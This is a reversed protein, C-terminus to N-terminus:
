AAQTCKAASRAVADNFLAPAEINISHGGELDVTALSPLLKAARDRLPQFTREWLGNVLLSPATLEGLCDVVSLQPATYRIANAIAAPEILSADDLM